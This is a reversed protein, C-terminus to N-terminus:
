NMTYLILVQQEMLWFEEKIQVMTLGEKEKDKTEAM